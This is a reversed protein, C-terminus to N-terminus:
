YVRGFINFIARIDNIKELHSEMEFRARSHHRWLALERDRDSGDDEWYARLTADYRDALERGRLIMESAPSPRTQNFDCRASDSNECDEVVTGYSEGSIPDTFSIVEFGEGAEITEGTGLKVINTRDNYRTSWSATSYLMGYFLLDDMLSFTADTEVIPWPEVCEGGVCALGDDCAGNPQSRSCAPVRGDCSLEDPVCNGFENCTHDDGCLGADNTCDQLCFFETGGEELPQCYTGGLSGTSGSCQNSSTCPECLAALRRPGLSDDISEGTEPNIYRRQNPDWVRALPQYHLEGVLNGDTEGTVNMVPSYEGYNETLVHGVLADIEEDFLDYYQIAYTGADGDSGLVFAEPDFLAWTAALTSWYHGAENPLDPFNYGSDVDYSSFRRRGDGQPVQYFPQSGDCYATLFYENTQDPGVGSDDTLNYLQGNTGTCYTGYSPTAFSEVVLNFGMNVAMWYYDDMVDDYGDPSLYWNQYYDSLPLFTNFFHSFLVRWPRWGFRDRKFYQFYYYARYDDIVNRTVEFPDAGGDFVRCSLLASEWEDSCFLYPVRVARDAIGSEREDVYDDLRMWDRAFAASLNPFSQIFTTYHWRELYPVTPATPDEYYLGLEDQESLIAGAGGLSALRTTFIEVFGERHELCRGDPAVRGGADECTEGDRESADTGSSYGFMMASRDYRGLGQMDSNFTLGYDMISSYQFERMRGEVQADTLATLEYLDFMSSPNSLNERRLNWYEDHYNLSDYSGSFNHRLGVTHGIEHLTTARFLEARIERWMEDYDTRGEYAQAMGIVNPDLMEITDASRAIRRMRQERAYRAHTPTLWRAPDFADLDAPDVGTHTAGLASALTPEFEEQAVLMSIGSERARELRNAIAARDFRPTVERQINRRERMERERPRDAGVPVDRLGPDVRDIRTSGAARQAVQERVHELDVLEDPQLDGNTFRIVDLAYSAYTNMAAGYMYARGSVIEGTEPDTASPGYGLLGQQTEATVLHLTSYRLDGPRPSLGVEGCGEPDGDVVPNSCLIFIEPVDDVSRGQVTAVVERAVEDWEEVSDYAAQVLLDDEPFDTNLYYPVVGVPREAIPIPIRRGAEDLLYDGSEDREYTAAWINHRNIMKSRTSELVGRQTDYVYRENLFYGFRSMNRDDYHVPEYDRRPETRAFSMVVEVDAATCDEYLRAYWPSSLLCGILDPAVLLRRPVDFYVLEDEDDREWYLGREADRESDVTFSGEIPTAIWESIFDWNTIANRSWDVRMYDREFWPRDSYNEGITNTQEGTSSNYGREVDFHGLIPFAAVPEEAYDVAGYDTETEVDDSGPVLPYARHAFLWDEEIRWVIKEMRSTEGEFTAEAAPPVDVVTELYYWVGDFDAKLAANPQTRDIDGITQACGSLLFAAALAATPLVTRM